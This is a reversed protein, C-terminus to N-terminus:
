LTIAPATALNRYSDSHSYPLLPPATALFRYPCRLLSVFPPATSLICYPDFAASLFRHPQDNCSSLNLVKSQFSYM